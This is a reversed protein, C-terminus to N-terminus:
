ETREDIWDQMEKETWGDFYDSIMEDPDADHMGAIHSGGLVYDYLKEYAKNDPRKSNYLFDFIEKAEIKSFKKTFGESMFQKFSMKM